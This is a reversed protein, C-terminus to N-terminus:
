LLFEYFGQKGHIVFHKRGSLEKCDIFQAICRYIGPSPTGVETGTALSQYVAGFFGAVPGGDVADSVNVILSELAVSNEARVSRLNLLFEEPAGL